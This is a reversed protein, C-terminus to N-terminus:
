CFVIKLVVEKGLHKNLRDRWMSRQMHLENRWVSSKMKVHLHGEKKMWTRVTNRKVHQGAITYWADAARAEDMKPGIGMEEILEDLVIGLARPKFNEEGLM